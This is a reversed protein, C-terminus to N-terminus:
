SQKLQIVVGKGDLSKQLKIYLELDGHHPKYVDQWIKNNEYSTMSKYFDDSTISLVIEIIETYSIGLAHANRSCDGTIIRTKENAILKKLEALDYHRKWKDIVKPKAKTM